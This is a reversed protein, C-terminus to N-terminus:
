KHTLFEQVATFINAPIIKKQDSLPFETQLLLIHSLIFWLKLSHFLFLKLRLAAEKKLHDVFSYFIYKSLSSHIFFLSLSQVLIILSFTFIVSPSFYLVELAKCVDDVDPTLSAILTLVLQWLKLLAWALAM